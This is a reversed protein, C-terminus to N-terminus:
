QLGCDIRTLKGIFVSTNFKLDYIEAKLKTFSVILYMNALQLM